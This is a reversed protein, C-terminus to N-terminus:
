EGSYPEAPLRDIPDEGQELAMRFWEISPTTLAADLLRTLEDLNNQTAIAATVDAPVEQFRV